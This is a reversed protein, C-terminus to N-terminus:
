QANAYVPLLFRSHYDVGLREGQVELEWFTAPRESPTSTLHKTDPLNWSSRLEGTENVLEGRITQSDHYMQYCVVVSERKRGGEREQIEYAEEICRLNLHITTLDSPLRQITLHM